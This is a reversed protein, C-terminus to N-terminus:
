EFCRRIGEEFSVPPKWGLTSKTHSIDIQLNSSLRDIVSAKGLLGAFFRIINVPVPLLFPRKGASLIMSRLLHSTSVDNDDSVLFTQNAAKPHNICTIILDVLNDIGVLSRKNDIAGLPLPLNKKALTTLKGFNGPASAGHVLPSRIIVVEMGTEKAIKKLGVEAENKCAAYHEQPNPADDFAFPKKTMIGNVTISSIFIFRKIGSAAAQSALNLTGAVNVERGYRLIEDTIQKTNHASGALHVVVSVGNFAESWNTLSSIADIYFIDDGISNSVNSNRVVAKFESETSLSLLHSGIFGTAGTLLTAM